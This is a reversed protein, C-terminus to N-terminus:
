TRAERTKQQIRFIVFEAPKVPAIGIVCILRGNDIDDQSMSTRDCKVFFAEDPKNGELAGSRWVSTLFNSIAQRVRAWTAESNPEFVVWQTGEDISEEVLIFLRRVNIYKWSGDSSLTRAGWVRNGRKPFFRLANIGRPNLMAQERTTIDEAFRTIGRVVENAPAKHVGREIDVRAYIGALHGSPAVDVLREVAPDTNRPDRLTLWPYYIAAYKTDFTERVDRIQQLTLGSQPDVIAFRDELTECHIILSSQVSNSWMNPAMCISIEEIDELAQVGTRRGSGADVGIFDNVSLSALNDNGNTLGLWLQNDPPLVAPFAKFSTASFGGGNASPVTEVEVLKSVTNVNRTLFSMGGDDTLRLNSFTEKVPDGDTPLYQARIEAEIVRLKHNDMYSFALAAGGVTVREGIVSAVTRIEKRTGNDLEVIANTYLQNAHQAYIVNTGAAGSSHLLRVPTGAPWTSGLPTGPNITMNTGAFTAVYERGDILVRDNNQFGTTTPDLPIVTVGPGGPPTTVDSDVTTLAPARGSNPDAQLELLGGVMPRVQVRLANGWDGVSRARFRITPVNTAPTPTPGQRQVIEVFDRGARLNQGVPDQLTITNTTPNYSTVPRLDGVLVGAVFVQVETNTDIGLLHRLPLVPDAADVDGVLESTVGQGAQGNAASAGSSFVRKVYLRRGGNDFFGKVSLPFLWWRGGETANLSWRNITAPDPDPIFGGFTREFEAFSTVLEPRGTSPGRLTVGVAGATSTSVGEIPKPGTDVEQVYVGPALYEPM